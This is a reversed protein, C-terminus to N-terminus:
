PNAVQYMLAGGSYFPMYFVGACNTHSAVTLHPLACLGPLRLGRAAAGPAGPDRRPRRVLYARRGPQRLGAVTELLVTKGSGTPGLIVLFEGKEM